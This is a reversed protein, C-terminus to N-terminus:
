WWQFLKGEVTAQYSSIPSKATNPLGNPGTKMMRVAASPWISGSKENDPCVEGETM